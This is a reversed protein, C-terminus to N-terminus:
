QCVTRTTREAELIIRAARKQIHLVNELGKNSCSSWISSAYLIVPKIVAQYYVLRQKQKLHPSIHRLLGLRKSLKKCLEDIHEDYTLDHDIKLGLM